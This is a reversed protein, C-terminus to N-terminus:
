GEGWGGLVDQAVYEEVDVIRGVREGQSTSALCGRWEDFFCRGGPLAALEKADVHLKEGRWRDADNVDSIEVTDVLVVSAAANRLRKVTLDGHRGVMTMGVRLREVSGGLLEVKLTGTLGHPRRVFGVEIMRSSTM